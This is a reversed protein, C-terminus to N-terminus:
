WEKFTKTVSDFQLSVTGLKGIKDHYRSKATKFKTSGGKDRHIIIGLDAKNFWHASDSIDYLTPMNYDGDKDKIQKTPHAVVMVHVKLAKALQKIQRIAWGVYQTLSEGKQPEHELENWPDLIIIDCGMRDVAYQVKEMFWYLDLQDNLLQKESPCIFTMHKNIWREADGEPGGFRAKHWAKLTPIHDARPNQEFSAFAVKLEPNTAITSCVLDNVFTTKGMSPIGTCVSFDGKRFKFYDGVIHGTEYIIAEKEPPLDYITFVGDEIMPKATEVSKHVGKVGYKVLTENIDKCGKPYRIYECKGKGIKVALDHLLNNGNKDNDVALIIRPQKRLLEVMGNLYAYKKGEGDQQENSAGEPVSITKLYGEQILTIADIEGETIFLPDDAMKENYLCDINYFIKEGGKEQFFKKEDLCRHKANVQEGGKFYPIEVWTESGKSYEKLKQEHVHEIKLKREKCFEILNM